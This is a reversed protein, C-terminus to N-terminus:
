GAIKKAFVHEVPDIWDERIKVRFGTVGGQRDTLFTILSEYLVPDNWKCLFTDYHWHELEGSMSPHAALQIHLKGDEERVIAGGAIPAEYMGTYERLPLSPKTGNVRLNRLNEKAKRAREKNERDFDQYIRIWDQSPADMITNVIHHYLALYATNPLKNTFVAVALNEEPIFGTISLMGDVGGTHHIMMRGHYDSLFWGLGYAAFHRSPFMKREWPTMPLNNHATRTEALVSPEILQRGEVSGDALQFRLWRAIDSVSACISGAPGVSTDSRYGVTQVRGDVDEHPVAVNERDGFYRPNTVSDKMGLPKFIRQEIFADWSLGTVSSILAGATVFMLNSYGYGARFGFAPQIYQIRRLVEEISYNSLLLIDGGWTPLGSRHCLLDRITIHETVYDDYMRFSPLYKIVVDDWAIKGESVLMALAAATFPKTNSGIAFLTHEDVGGEKRIERLGYGKELLTDQDKIVTLALGPINWLRMAEQVIRDIDERLASFAKM